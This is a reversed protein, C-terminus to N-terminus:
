VSLEKLAVSDTCTLEALRGHSFEFDGALKFVRRPVPGIAPGNWETVPFVDQAFIPEADVDGAIAQVAGPFGVGDAFLGAGAAHAQEVVIDALQVHNEGNVRGHGDVISTAILIKVSSNSFGMRSSSCVSSSSCFCAVSCFISRVACILAISSFSSAVFFSIKVLRVGHCRTWSARCGLRGYMSSKGWRMAVSKM